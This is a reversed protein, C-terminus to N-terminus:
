WRLSSFLFYMSYFGITVGEDGFGVFSPTQTSIVPDKETENLFFMRTSDQNELSQRYLLSHEIRM